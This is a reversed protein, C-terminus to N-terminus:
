RFADAMDHTVEQRGTDEAHYPFGDRGPKNPNLRGRALANLAQVPHDGIGVNFFNEDVFAGIGAVDPDNPQKNLMPGSHCTFSGAGGAGNAAPTFFLKAGRRQGETLAGNDGALFRDFPTNRTVVTRLFTAQARFETVDNVLLTLDKQADAMAAEQPFAERFLQVYAPIKLLEASQFNLMRHADLLLLTLNEAAPDSFPNLSGPTTQPEGGLGGFLLRNNFAFGVMSPAQRGVSDLEDLRGTKLLADVPPLHYFRAPTTVVTQGAVSFIDALTPLADVLVDGPFIPATRLKTLISQPPRPPIFNRHEDKYGRGEGGSAFNLLQGAKGAAEGLHCSGCSTDQRQANVIEQINPESASVTGGFATGAPLDLPQGKNINVRASRIPDHFLMKGLFRKAETTQYRPNVTGDPMRPMPIDADTPPVKLKNIGGVQQDIFQRLHTPSDGQASAVGCFSILLLAVARARVVPTQYQRRDTPTSTLAYARRDVPLRFHGNSKNKM